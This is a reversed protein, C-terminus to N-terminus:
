LSTDVELTGPATKLRQARVDLPESRHVLSSMAPWALVVTVVLLGIVTLYYPWPSVFRYSLYTCAAGALVVFLLRFAGLLSAVVLIIALGPMLYYPNM